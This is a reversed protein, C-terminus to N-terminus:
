GVQNTVPVIKASKLLRAIQKSNFNSIGISKTLGKKPLDEMAKWTDVFDTDSPIFLGTKPDIPHLNSGEKFNQFDFFKNLM